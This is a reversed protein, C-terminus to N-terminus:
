MVSAFAHAIWIYTGKHTNMYLSFALSWLLKHPSSHALSFIFANEGFLLLVWLSVTHFISSFLFLSPFFLFVFRFLLILTETLVPISKSNKSRLCFGSCSFLWRRGSLSPLPLSFSNVSELISGQNDLTNHALNLSHIVSAPNESLASAM